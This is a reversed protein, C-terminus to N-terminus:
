LGPAVFTENNPTSFTLVFYSKEKISSQMHMPCVFPAGNKRLDGKVGVFTCAM